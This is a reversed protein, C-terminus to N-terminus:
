RGALVNELYEDRIADRRVDLEDRFQDCLAEAKASLKIKDLEGVSEAVKAVQAALPELTAPDFESTKAM